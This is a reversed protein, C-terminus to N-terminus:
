AGTYCFGAWYFPHEFPRSGPPGDFGGSDLVDPVIRRMESITMGRMRSQARSLTIRGDPIKRLGQHLLTMLVSTAVDDVPWMAAIVGRARASLLGGVLGTGEDPVTEGVGATECGSLVCLPASRFRVSMLEHVKISGGDAVTIASNLPQGPLSTAHTAFHALTCGPIAALVEDKRWARRSAPWARGVAIAERV